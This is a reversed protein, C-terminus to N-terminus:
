KNQIANAADQQAQAAAMQTRFQMELQALQLQTQIAQQQSAQVSALDTGM